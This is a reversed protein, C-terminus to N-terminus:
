GFTRAHLFLSSVLPAGTPTVLEAPSTGLKLGRLKEALRSGGPTRPSTPSTPYVEPARPGIGFHDEIWQKEQMAMELGVGEGNTKMEQSIEKQLVSM